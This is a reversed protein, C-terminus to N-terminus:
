KKPTISDLLELATMLGQRKGRGYELAINNAKIEKEIEERIASKFRRKYSEMCEIILIESYTRRHDPIDKWFQDIIEKPTSM